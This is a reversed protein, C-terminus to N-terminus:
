TATRASTTRSCRAASGTPYISRAGPAGLPRRTRMTPAPTAPRVVARRSAWGADLDADEVRGVADAAPQQGQRHAVQPEVGPGVREDRALRPGDRETLLEPELEDRRARAAGRDVRLSPEDVQGRGREAHRGLSRRERTPLPEGAAAPHPREAIEDALRGGAVVVLRESREQSAPETVLRGLPQDRREEGPQEGAVDVPEADARREGLEGHPLPPEAAQDATRLGGELRAAGRTRHEQLRTAADLGQRAGEGFADPGLADRGACGDGRDLARAVSQRQDGTVSRVVRVGDDERGRRMVRGADKVADRGLGAGDESSSRETEM